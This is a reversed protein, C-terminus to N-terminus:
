YPNYKIHKALRRIILYIHRQSPNCAYDKKEDYFVYDLLKKFDDLFLHDKATKKKSILDM